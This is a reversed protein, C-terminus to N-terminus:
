VYEGYLRDFLLAGLGERKEPLWPAVRFVEVKDLPRYPRRTRRRWYTRFHDYSPMGERMLAAQDEVIDILRERRHEVLVMLKTKTTGRSTTAYIVVPTPAHINAAGAGMNPVRFETKAGQMLATWDGFPARLFLTSARRRTLGAPHSGGDVGL